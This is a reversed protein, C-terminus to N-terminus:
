RPLQLEREAFRVAVEAALVSSWDFGREGFKTAIRPLATDRVKGLMEEAERTKGLRSYARICSATAEIHAPDTPSLKYRAYESFANPYKGMSLEFQVRGIGDFPHNILNPFREIIGRVTNTRDLTLALCSVTSGIIRLHSTTGFQNLFRDTARASAETRGLYAAVRVLEVHPYWSAPDM